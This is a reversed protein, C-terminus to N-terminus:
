QGSRAYNYFYDKVKVFGNPTEKYEAILRGATDYVYKVAFGDNDLNAILRGTKDDYVSGTFSADVPRVIIDDVYTPTTTSAPNWIYAALYFNGPNEALTPVSIYSSILYWDGM